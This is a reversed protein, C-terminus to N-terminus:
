EFFFKKIEYEKNGIPTPVEAVDGARKGILQRALPSVISIRGSRVDAEDLGVIQYTVDKDTELDVLVVHAGFVVRDSRIQSTDIVQAGAIQGQIENIRGEIWAQREKAADYEANETLDGQERAAEIARIVAPREVQILNKLDSELKQKGRLTIPLPEKKPMSTMM